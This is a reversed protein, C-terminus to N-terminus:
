KLGSNYNAVTNKVAKIDSSTGTLKEAWYRGPHLIDWQSKKQAYRGSGPDHNGFGDIAKNWIPSFQNILYSEGHPIWIHEVVLYRCAFDEIKLNASQRISEAHEKLRHFLVSGKYQDINLGKRSGPPVAKGVYIPLAYKDGLNKEAIKKYLPSKGTYYIAYVGAGPFPM